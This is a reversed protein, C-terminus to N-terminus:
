DLHREHGPDLQFTKLKEGVTLTLALAPLHDSISYGRRSAKLGPIADLEQPLHLHHALGLVLPLGAFSTLSLPTKEVQLANLNSVIM